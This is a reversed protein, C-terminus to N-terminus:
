GYTNDEVPKPKPGPKKRAALEELSQELSKLKSELVECREELAKIKITQQISM